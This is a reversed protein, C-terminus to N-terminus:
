IATDESGANLDKRANLESVRITAIGVPVRTRPEIRTCFASDRCRKSISTWAPTANMFRTGVVRPSEDIVLVRLFLAAPSEQM